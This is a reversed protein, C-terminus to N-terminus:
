ARTAPYTEEIDLIMSVVDDRVLDPIRTIRGICKQVAGVITHDETIGTVLAHVRIPVIAGTSDGWRCVIGMGM